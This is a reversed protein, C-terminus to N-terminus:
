LSTYDTIKILNHYLMHLSVMLEKTLATVTTHDLEERRYDFFYLTHQTGSWRVDIYYVDRSKM